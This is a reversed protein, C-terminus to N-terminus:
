TQKSINYRATGDSSFAYGKHKLMADLRTWEFNGPCNKDRKQATTKTNYKWINHRHSVIRTIPYLIFLYDFLLKFLSTYQAETYPDRNSKSTNIMEIGITEKDHKSSSSHYVYYMPDIVEAILGDREGKDGRGILYHFLAIGKKYEEARGWNYMWHLLGATSRGGATGHIVIENPPTKRINKIFGDQYKIRITKDIVDIVSKEPAISSSEPSGYLREEEPINLNDSNKSAPSQYFGKIFTMLGM